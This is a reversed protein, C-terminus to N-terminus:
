LKSMAVLGLCISVIGIVLGIWAYRLIQRTSLTPNGFDSDKRWANLTWRGYIWQYMLSDKSLSEPNRILHISWLIIAIGILTLLFTTIM